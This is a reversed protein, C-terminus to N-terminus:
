PSRRDLTVHTGLKSNNVRCAPNAFLSQIQDCMHITTGITNHEAIQIRISERMERATDAHTLNRITAVPTINMKNKMGAPRPSINLAIMPVMQPRSSFKEYKNWIMKALPNRSGDLSPVIPQFSIGTGAAHPTRIKTQRSE